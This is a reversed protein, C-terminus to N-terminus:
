AMLDEMVHGYVDTLRYRRGQHLFTLQEHDIGLWVSFRRRCIMCM